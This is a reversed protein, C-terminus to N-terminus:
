GVAKLVTPREITMRAIIEPRTDDKGFDPVEGNAIARLARDLVMDMYPQYCAPYEVFRQIM